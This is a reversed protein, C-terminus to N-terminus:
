AWKSLTLHVKGDKTEEKVAYGQLKAKATAVSVAYGQVLKQGNKGLQAELGGSAYFDWLLVYGPKGDRRRCVGVEYSAGPVHIAHECHGLDTVTFGAPTPYDGVSQGYWAYTTQGERWELGLRQCVAKLANLDKVEVAISAVHSM